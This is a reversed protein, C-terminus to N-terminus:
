NEKSQCFFRGNDNIFVQMTSKGKPLKKGKIKIKTKIHKDSDGYIPERNFNIKLLKEVKKRIQNYKKLLKSDNIKFSMANNGEFKRVYGFMRPLKICLPRIVDNDNLSALKRFIEPIGCIKEFITM